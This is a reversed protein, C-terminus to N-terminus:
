RTGPPAGRPARLVGQLLCCGGAGRRGVGSLPPSPVVLHLRACATSLVLGVWLPARPTRPHQDTEATCPLPGAWSRHMSGRPVVKGAQPLFRARLAETPM